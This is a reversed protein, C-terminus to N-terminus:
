TQEANSNDTLAKWSTPPESVDSYRPRVISSSLANQIMLKASARNGANLVNRIHAAAISRYRMSTVHTLM